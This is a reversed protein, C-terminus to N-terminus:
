NEERGVLKLYEEYPCIIKLTALLANSTTFNDVYPNVLLALEFEEYSNASLDARCLRMRKVDLALWTDGFNGEQNLDLHLAALIDDEVVGHEAFCAAAEKTLKNIPLMM